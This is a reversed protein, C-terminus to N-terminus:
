EGAETAEYCNPCLRDGLPFVGDPAGFRRPLAKDDGIRSTRRASHGTSALPVCDRELGVWGCDPNICIRLEAEDAVVGGYLRGVVVGALFAILAIILSTFTAPDNM